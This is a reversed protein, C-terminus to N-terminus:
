SPNFSRTTCRPNEQTLNQHGKGSKPLPRANLRIPKNRGTEVSLILSARYKAPSDSPGM